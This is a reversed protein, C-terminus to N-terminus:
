NIRTSEVSALSSSMSLKEIKLSKRATIEYKLKVMSFIGM